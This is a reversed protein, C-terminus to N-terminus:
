ERPKLANTLFAMLYRTQHLTLVTELRLTDGRRELKAEDVASKLGLYQVRPHDAIEHRLEEVRGLAEGARKESEYYGFVRLQMHFEDIHWVSIRLGLPVYDNEGVVFARAGEVSLAAAEGPYMALLAAPGTAKEIDPQKAQRRALAASVGMVRPLDRPRAVVFQDPAVLAVERATPGRNYWPAVELGGRSEFSVSQGKSQALQQAARQLAALGGRFRASMVLESHKLSPTAVFVRSLDEIGLGSGQLLKEWEPVIELLARTELTLSTRRIEDLDANLGIVAGPPGGKGNGSGGSGFGFGEGFVGLGQGQGSTEGPAGSPQEDNAAVETSAAEAPAAADHVVGADLVIADSTPKPAPKQPSPVPPLPTPKHEQPAAAPPPSGQQGPDSEVVGLEVEDPLRFEIPPKYTSAVSVAFFALVHLLLSVAFFTVMLDRQHTRDFLDAM